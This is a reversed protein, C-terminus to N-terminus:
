QYWLDKVHTVCERIQQESALTMEDSSASDRRASMERLHEHAKQCREMQRDMVANMVQAEIGQCDSPSERVTPEDPSNIYKTPIRGGTKVLCRDIREQAVEELQEHSDLRRTYTAADYGCKWATALLVAFVLGFWIRNKKM